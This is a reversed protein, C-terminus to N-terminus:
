QLVKMEKVIVEDAQYIDQKQLTDFYVTKGTKIGRTTAIGAAMIGYNSHGIIHSKCNSLLQHSEICHKMGLGNMVKDSHFNQGIYNVYVEKEKLESRIRKELIKVYEENDGTIYITTGEIDKIYSMIKDFLVGMNEKLILFNKNDRALGYQADSVRIQVGIDFRREERFKPILVTSYFQAMNRKVNELFSCGLKQRMWEVDFCFRDYAQNCELIMTKGRYTDPKWSYITRKASQLPSLDIWHIHVGKIENKVDNMVEADEFVEKMYDEWWIIRLKLDFLRSFTMATTMGVMRDGYGGNGRKALFFLSM